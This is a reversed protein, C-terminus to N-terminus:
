YNNGTENKNGKTTYGKRAVNRTYWGRSILSLRFLTFYTM